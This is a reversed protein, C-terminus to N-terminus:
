LETKCWNGDRVCTQSLFCISREFWSVDGAGSGRYGEAGRLGEKAVLCM